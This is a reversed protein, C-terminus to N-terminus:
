EDHIKERSEALLASGLLTLGAWVILEWLLEKRKIEAVRLADVAESDIEEESKEGKRLQAELQATEDQTRPFGDRLLDGSIDRSRQLLVQEEGEERNWQVATGIAVPTLGIWIGLVSYAFFRRISVHM